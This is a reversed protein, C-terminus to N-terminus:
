ASPEDDEVCPSLGCWRVGKETVIADVFQDHGAIPVSPVVQFEYAYGVLLPRMGQAMAFTRDYYGAGRGLRRGASDFALGPVVVVDDATLGVEPADARPEEIGLAGRILRGAGGVEHFSLRKRVADVRPLLLERRAHRLLEMLPATDLEGPIAAYLGVRRAARIRPLTMLACAARRAASEAVDSEVTRRLQSMRRRLRSKEAISM